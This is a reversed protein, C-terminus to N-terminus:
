VDRYRYRFFYMLRVTPSSCLRHAASGSSSMGHFHVTTNFPLNNVVNVEVDNGQDIDLVPGPFEGNILVMKRPVGGDPANDEWTLTLDYVHTAYSSAALALAFFSQLFLRPEM